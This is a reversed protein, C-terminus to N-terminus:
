TLQKEYIRYTKYKVGNMMQAARNMPINGEQVWSAEGFEYGKKKARDMTELYLMADVGRGRYEKLVGLILIRVTDIAKKKTLLRWVAVPLNMIGRPIKPGKFLAQNIDPLSLAFGVPTGNVEAFLVLEPDYVQKLDKVMFDMEADTLPVFGDNNWATNYIQKVLAVDEDFHDKRITRITVKQRERMANTVRVLKDSKATQQSLLWAFLDNHKTYGNQEILRSYYPPNYTMLMVPPRDFGDVLLGYEDNSSPNAPGLCKNMGANRLYQEASDFLAKATEPNNESEFFGFFGSKENYLRNHAHNIIAGIRGVIKGDREAIFWRADAHQYFPNKKEDMLKMRDMEMPPLWNPDNGYIDWMMRIFRRKDAASSISRVTLPM